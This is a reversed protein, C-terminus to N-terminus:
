NNLYRVQMYVSHAEAVSAAEENVSTTTLSAEDSPASVGETVPQTDLQETMRNVGGKVVSFTDTPWWKTLLWCVFYKVPQEAGWYIM